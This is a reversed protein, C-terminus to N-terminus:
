NIESINQTIYKEEEEKTALRIKKMEQIIEKKYQKNKKKLIYEVILLISIPLIIVLSFCIIFYM